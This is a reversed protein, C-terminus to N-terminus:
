VVRTRGTISRGEVTGDAYDAETFMAIRRESRHVLGGIAAGGAHHYALEAAIAAYNGEAIAANLRPSSHESVGGEGVNYILDVLADFEHQFLPLDGVLRQVAEEALRLDHDFLDLIRDYSIQKGVSLGDAPTVLHGVGVTPLGIADSYVTRRVGEAQV